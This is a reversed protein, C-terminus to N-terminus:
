PIAQLSSCENTGPKVHVELCRETGPPMTCVAPAMKLRKLGPTDVTSDESCTALCAGVEELGNSNDPKAASDVLMRRGADLLQVELDQGIDKPKKNKGKSETAGQIAYCGGGCPTACMTHLRPAAVGRKMVECTATSTKCTHIRHM